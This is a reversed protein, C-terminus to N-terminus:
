LRLRLSRAKFRSRQTVDGNRRITQPSRTGRCRHPPACLADLIADDEDSLAPFQRAKPNAWSARARSAARDRYESFPQRGEDGKVHPDPADGRAQTMNRTKDGERVPVTENISGRWRLRRTRAASPSSWASQRIPGSQVAYTGAAPRLRGSTQRQSKKVPSRRSASSQSSPRSSLQNTRRGDSHGGPDSGCGPQDIGFDRRSNRREEAIDELVRGLQPWYQPRQRHRGALATHRRRYRTTLSRRVSASPWGTAM